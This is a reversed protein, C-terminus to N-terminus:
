LKLRIGRRSIWGTVQVIILAFLLSKLLGPWGGWPFMMPVSMVGMIAYAYYPVLYCLLTDTGAPRIIRFADAKGLLDAVWYVIAFVAITIGSCIFVWSPTVMVKSIGWYPRTIIGATVLGAAILILWGIVSVSRATATFHRFIMSTIAGGLVLAALGGDGVPGLWARLWHGEPTVHRHAAINFAMCVAWAALVVAIRGRGFIFVVSAVLYSWGILGLIGWWHKSFGQSGDGCRCVYVLLLLGAIGLAKLVYKRVGPWSEPYQNWILIFSTCAIVNWMGRSLGTAGENLNEGNVLVVGMVLLALGRELAHRLLAWTSDGKRIRNAMAYPLSMGVIFLFAPFVTDALGMGDEQPQTHGLWGPIDHLTWLDNVFIMLTMTLARTIDISAIRQTLTM